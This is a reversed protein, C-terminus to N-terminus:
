GHTMEMVACFESGNRVRGLNDWMVTEIKKTIKINHNHTVDMHTACVRTRARTHLTIFFLGTKRLVSKRKCILEILPDFFPPDFM